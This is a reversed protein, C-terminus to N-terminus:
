EAEDTELTGKHHSLLIRGSLEWLERAYSVFLMGELSKYLEV